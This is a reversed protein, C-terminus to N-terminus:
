SAQRSSARTRAQTTRVARALQNRVARTRGHGPGLTREYDSLDRELLPIAEATRGIRLYAGILEHRAALTDPHGSGLVREDEGLNRELLPIADATRRTRQYARALQSRAQRAAAGGLDLSLEYDCLNQELLPIEKRTQGTAQYIMRRAAAEQQWKSASAEALWDAAARIQAATTVHPVASHRGKSWWQTVGMLLTIALSVVALYWGYITAADVPNKSHRYNWLVVAIGALVAAIAILTLATRRGSRM